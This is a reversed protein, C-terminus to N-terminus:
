GADSLGELQPRSDPGQSLGHATKEWYWPNHFLQLFGKWAGLSMLFWYAGIILNYKILSYFGRRLCGVMSAYTLAFNAFMMSIAGAFYVPGPFFERIFGWHTLLWTLTLIWFFPNVLPIFFTGGITAHFSLFAKFGLSRYLAFPRRMHVLWTQIFGKTWRSRQRITNHIGSNAEEWTTSEVMTTTYGRKFLRIGLDADETLNYPDWAGLERLVSTRFHNSTGGLPIPARFANLGPLILDFWMSYESTFWRAVLNENPNFCNLKCQVCSLEPSGQRFALLVKKLQDPEPVDEADYIVTYSGRAHRLGYNCAKPKTKPNGPPVVLIQFHAPLNSARAAEISAVDDEELLLKVDLKAKPYDLSGIGKVLTPLVESEGYLPVLITYLPLDREDLAAIDEASLTVVSGPQLGRYILYLRYSALSIYVMQIFAIVAIMSTMPWLVLSAVGLGLAAPLVRKQGGSLVQSASDGPFRALLEGTSYRVNAARYLDEYVAMFESTSMLIPRLARGTLREIEVMTEDDLPDVIGLTLEGDHCALPLVRRERAIDAPIVEAMAPYPEVDHKRYTPLSYQRALYHIVPAETHGLSVMAEGVRLGARNAHDAASEAEDRSMVGNTVLADGLRPQGPDRTIVATGSFSPHEM